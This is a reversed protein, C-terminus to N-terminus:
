SFMSWITFPEFSWAATLKNSITNEPLLLKVNAIVVTSISFINRDPNLVSVTVELIPYAIALSPANGNDSRHLKMWGYVWEGSPIIQKIKMRVEISQVKGITLEEAKSAM